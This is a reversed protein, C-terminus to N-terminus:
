VGSPREIRLSVARGVTQIRSNLESENDAIGEDVSVLLDIGEREAIGVADVVVAVDHDLNLGSLETELSPDDFQEYESDLRERIAREITQVAQNVRRFQALQEPTSLGDLQQEIQIRLVGTDNNTTQVSRNSPDYETLATEPNQTVWDLLDEYVAGHRDCLADFEDDVKGGIVLQQTGDEFLSATADPESIDDRLGDLGFQEAMRFLLYDVLVSTDLNAAAM